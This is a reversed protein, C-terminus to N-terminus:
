VARTPVVLRLSYVGGAIAIMLAMSFLLQYSTAQVIAGAFLPTILGLAGILSAVTSYLPREGDPAYEVVYNIFGVKFMAGEAGAFFIASYLMAIGFQGSFLALGIHMVLFLMALWVGARSSYRSSLMSGILAGFMQGMILLVLFNRVLTENDYGLERVGYVIYFGTTARGFFLLFRVILFDRYPKDTQILARLYKGYQMLTPANRHPPTPREILITIMLASAFMFMGGIIFLYGYNTPFPASELVAGVLFVSIIALLPGVFVQSYGLFQIRSRNTLSSGMLEFWAPSTIGDMLQFSLVAVIVVGILVASHGGGIVVILVGAGIFTWRGLLAPIMFWPKRKEARAIRPSFGFQMVLRGLSYCTLVLGIIFESSTLQGIFDPLVVTPNIITAAISAFLFDGIFAVLNRREHPLTTTLTTM